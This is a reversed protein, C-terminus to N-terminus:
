RTGVHRNIASIISTLQEPTCWEVRDISYMQRAIGDAYKWHYGNDLLLAQIKSGLEKRGKSFDREEGNIGLIGNFGKANTFARVLPGYHRQTAESIRCRVTNYSLQQRFSDYNGKCGNEEWAERALIALRAKQKYSLPLDNRVTNM